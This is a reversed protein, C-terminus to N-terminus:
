VSFKQTSPEPEDIIRIEKATQNRLGVQAALREIIRVYAQASPSQPDARVIPRGQDAHERIHIDLPIEGLFPIKLRRSEEAVSGHGFIEERHGCQSCIHYSMNEIIGLPHVKTQEFMRFTKMSITLGVDQPTSVIVAGTLSITQVLTLHVDGTGPPMDVILYDLDGWDVNMLSEQVAKHAMPGRWILPQNGAALFGMSMFKVGHAEIPIIRGDRQKLTESRSGMMIPITPGYIDGDVLGVTAGFRALGVALNASVTSKGVGGKGSGVAVINKVGALPTKENASRGTIESKPTIQISSVGPLNGLARSAEEGTKERGPSIPTPWVLDLGVQGNQISINKVFGMSVIDKEFDPDRVKGLRSLIDKENVSM